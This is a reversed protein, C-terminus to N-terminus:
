FEDKEEGKKGKKAPKEAEVTFCAVIQEDKEEGPALEVTMGPKYIRGAFQCKTVCTAKM